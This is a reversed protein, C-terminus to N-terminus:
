FFIVRYCAFQARFASSKLFAHLFNLITNTWQNKLKSCTMGKKHKMGGPPALVARSARRCFSFRAPARACRRRVIVALGLRCGCRRRDGCPSDQRPPSPWLLRCTPYCENHLGEPRAPSARATSACRVVEVYHSTITSPAANITAIIIPPRCSGHTFRLLSVAAAKKM